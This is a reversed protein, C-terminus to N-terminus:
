FNKKKSLAVSETRTVRTCPPPINKWVPTHSVSFHFGYSKHCSMEQLFQIVHDQLSLLGQTQWICAASGPSGPSKTQPWPTWPISGSTLRSARPCPAGHPSHLTMGACDSLLDGEVVAPTLATLTPSRVWGQRHPRLGEYVEPSLTKSRPSFLNEM